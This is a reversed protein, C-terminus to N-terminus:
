LRRRVCLITYVSSLLLLSAPEPVPPGVGALLNEFPSVDFADLGGDGNIDGVVDGSLGSALTYAQSDALALEFDDVDFADVLSNADMDGLIRQIVELSVENGQVGVRVTRDRGMAPMLLSSFGGTISSATILHYHQGVEPQGTGGFTVRLAGDLSAPGAIDLQDVRILPEDVGSPDGRTSGGDHEDIAAIIEVEMSLVGTATQTYGAASFIGPSQGPALDGANIVEVDVQGQGMVTAGQTIVIRGTGTINAGPQFIASGVIELDALLMTTSQDVFLSDSNLTSAHERVLLTGAQTFLPAVYSGGTLTMVGRHFLGMSSMRFAHGEGVNLRGTFENQGRLVGPVLLDGENANLVGNGTEGDLDPFARSDLVLTDGRASTTGNNTYAAPNVTGDGIVSGDNVMGASGTVRGRTLDMGGDLTWAQTTNVVLVAGDKLTVVGGYGGMPPGGTAGGLGSEIRESDITFTIGEDITTNSPSGGGDWDFVAIGITTDHPVVADGFQMLTGAGIFSGGCYEVNGLLQLVDGVNPVSVVATTEFKIDSFIGNILGTSQINGGVIIKSGDVVASSFNHMLNMQGDQRWPELTNVVLRGGAVDVTGDFGNTVPDGTEIKEADITFTVGPNISTRSSDNGDWDFTRPGVTTDALVLADGGQFVRGQGTFGGGFYDTQGLLQLVDPFVGGGSPVSVQASPMFEVDADIVNNGDSTIQGHVIMTSGQVRAPSFGAKLQMQGDLRWAASTNVVLTSRDVIVTGDFGDNQPDNDIQNSNITLTVSPIITIQTNGGGDMDYTAVDITTSTAVVADGEQVIRGLGMYSGGRMTTTGRLQLMDGTDPVILNATNRINVDSNIRGIGDAEVTGIMVLQSGDVEPVSGMQTLNMVGEHRWPDVTNVVLRGGQVNLTGDFGDVVPDSDDLKESNITLTVGPNITTASNGNVGDLDYTGVDFKTDAIITANGNQEIVGQGVHLGGFYQINAADLSLRDGPSSVELTVTPHLELFPSEVRAPGDVIVEGRLDTITASMVSAPEGVGGTMFLDGFKGLTWAGSFSVFADPGVFMDGDFSDTLGGDVILGGAGADVVGVDFSGDLDFAVPDDTTLVLNATTPRITGRNDLVGIGSTNAKVSGWGSIEGGTQINIRDAETEGGQMELVGGNQLDLQEARLRGDQQVRIRSNSGTITVNKQVFMTHDATRLSNGSEVSLDGAAAFGSLFVNVTSNQLRIFVDDANDPTDGGLWNIGAHWNGGGLFDKRSLDLQTWGSGAALAFMDAASPRTRESGSLNGMVADSGALHAVGGGSTTGRPLLAMVNNRVFGPNVDYDGDDPSTVPPNGVEALTGSFSSSMGLAHGIEQFALTVMDMGNKADLGNAADSPAFAVPGGRYGFEMVEPSNGTFRASQLGPNMDRTLLARMNYESDDWPTPDLFYSIESEFRVRAETERGNVEKGFNHQGSFGTNEQLQSDWQYKITITHDDEIIDEYVSAVYDLIFGLRLANPDFAPNNSTTSEDYDLVINLGRVAGVVSFLGLMVSMSLAWGRMRM